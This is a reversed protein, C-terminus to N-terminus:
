TDMENAMVVRIAQMHMLSATSTGRTRAPGDVM